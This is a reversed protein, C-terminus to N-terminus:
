VWRRVRKRYKRWSKGFKHNLHAEEREIALKQTVFAGVVGAPFMWWIGFILGIAFVLMANALYIPNRSIGYPGSTVLTDAAKNPLVTTNHKALTKFCSVDIAIAAIAIIIGLAFMFDSAPSPIWALPVFYHLLAAGIISTALIIPPWPLSNPKAFQDAM